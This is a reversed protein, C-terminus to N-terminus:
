TVWSGVDLGFESQLKMVGERFHDKLEERVEPSLEPLTTFDQNIKSFKQQKRQKDNSRFDLDEPTVDCGSGPRFLDPHGRRPTGRRHRRPPLYQHDLVAGPLAEPDHLVRRFERPQAGV